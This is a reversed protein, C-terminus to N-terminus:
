GGGADWTVWSVGDGPRRLEGGEVAQWFDLWGRRWRDRVWQRRQSYPNESVPVSLAAAVWGARYATDQYAQRGQGEMRVHISLRTGM